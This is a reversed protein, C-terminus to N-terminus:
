DGALVILWAHFHSKLIKLWNIARQPKLKIQLCNDTSLDDAHKASVMDPSCICYASDRTDASKPARIYEMDLIQEQFM